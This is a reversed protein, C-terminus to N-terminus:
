CCSRSPSSNARKRFCGVWGKFDSGSLHHFRLADVNGRRAITAFVIKHTVPVDVGASRMNLAPPSTILWWRADNCGRFTSEMKNRFLFAAPRNSGELRRSPGSGSSGLKISDHSSSWYTGRVHKGDVEGRRISLEGKKWAASAELEEQLKATHM